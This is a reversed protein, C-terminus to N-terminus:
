RHPRGKLARARVRLRAKAEAMAKTDQLLDLRQQERLLKRWSEYRDAPLAGSRLAEQVACGPEREHGCDAFRCTAALEEIDTFTRDVGEGTGWLALERMGPTDVLLGGGPLEFLQRFTTTHRGKHDSRVEQTALVEEGLLWNALTSKGVGSPGLLAVTRGPGIAAALEEMGAGTRASIVLVDAGVAVDEVSRRVAEVDPCLDAKSLVVVPIAGSEWAVALYREIRRLRVERDLPEVLFTTDVNAAVVQEETAAGPVKRSFTSRRPLIASVREGGELVVWDGVAPQADAASAAHHFLRGAVPARVEGDATLVTCVGMDVRSVRGPRDGDGGAEAYLASWRGDWGLRTLQEEDTADLM